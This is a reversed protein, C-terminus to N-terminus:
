VHSPQQLLTDVIRSLQRQEAPSSHPNGARHGLESHIVHLEAGPIADADAALDPASDVLTGDLDFLVARVGAFRIAAAAM